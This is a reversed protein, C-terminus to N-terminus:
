TKLWAVKYIRICKLFHLYEMGGIVREVDASTPALALLEACTSFGAANGEAAYRRALRPIVTDRM